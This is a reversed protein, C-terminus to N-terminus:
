SRDDLMLGSLEMIRALVDLRSEPPLERIVEESEADYVKVTIVNTAEHVGYSLRFNTPELARNADAIARNIMVDTVEIEPREREAQRNANGREIAAVQASEANIRATEPADIAINNNAAPRTESARRPAPQQSVAARNAGQQIAASQAQSNLNNVEM